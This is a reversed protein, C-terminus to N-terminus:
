HGRHRHPNPPPIPTSVALCLVYQTVFLGKGRGEGCEAVRLGRGDTLREFYQAAAGGEDQEAMGWARVGDVVILRWTRV